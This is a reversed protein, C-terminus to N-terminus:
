IIKKNLNQYYHPRRSYKKIMYNKLDNTNYGSKLKKVIVPFFIALLGGLIFFLKFIWNIPIYKTFTDYAFYGFILLAFLIVFFLISKWSMSKKKNEEFIEKENNEDINQSISNEENMSNYIDMYDYFNM